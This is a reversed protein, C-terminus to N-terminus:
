MKQCIFKTICLEWSFGIVTFLAELCTHNMAHPLCPTAQASPVLTFTDVGSKPNYCIYFVWPQEICHGICPLNELHVSISPDDKGLLYLNGDMSWLHRAKGMRSCGLRPVSANLPPRRSRPLPPMSWVSKLCTCLWSGFLYSFDFPPKRFHPHGLISPKM